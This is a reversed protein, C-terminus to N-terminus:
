AAAGALRHDTPLASAACFTSRPREASFRMPAASDAGPTRNSTALPPAEVVGIRGM